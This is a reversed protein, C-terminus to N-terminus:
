RALSAARTLATRLRRDSLVLRTKSVPFSAREPRSEQVATATKFLLRDDRGDNRFRERGAPVAGGGEGHTGANWRNRRPRASSKAAPVVTTVDNERRRRRRPTPKRSKVRREARGNGPSENSYNNNCLSTRADKLSSVNRRGYRQADSNNKAM